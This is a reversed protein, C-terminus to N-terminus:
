HVSVANDVKKQNQPIIFIKMRQHLKSKLITQKIIEGPYRVFFDLTSSSFPLRPFFRVLFIERATHLETKKATRVTVALGMCCYWNAIIVIFMIMIRM